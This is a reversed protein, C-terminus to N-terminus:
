SVVTLFFYRKIQIEPKLKPKRGRRKKRSGFRNLGDGKRVKSPVKSTINLESLMDKSKITKNHKNLKGAKNKHIKEKLLKAIKLNRQSRNELTPLKEARIIQASIVKAAADLNEIINTSQM